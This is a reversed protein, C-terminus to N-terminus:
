WLKCEALDNKDKIEEAIRIIGSLFLSNELNGALNNLMILDQNLNSNCGAQSAFEAKDRYLLTLSEVRQMLRKLQCEYIEPESFIAAYMLADTEFYMKENNKKVYGSGQNYDVSIGCNGSSSGFCVRVTEDDSPCNDSFLNKQKLVSIEDNIEEPSDIFCYKKKSSTLYILDSVKFPFEFPKSFLYFDKGEAYNESFIYKNSFGANVDTYTWENLTKQSVKITQKGFFGKNNCKNYIRTEAPMTISTTKGTEFGTELPNLLIGIEKSTKYDIETKGIDSIKVSSYIAIFLIFAGVIIAFLWAFPIQLFGKKGAFFVKKNNM